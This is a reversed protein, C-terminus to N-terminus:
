VVDLSEVRTSPAGPTPRMTVAHTLQARSTVGLKPFMRYLHSAVTRHSLYLRQGIEKNSLGLAVMQAIQIEQPSLQDWAEPARRTSSEGAARLEQRAREAWGLAGLRDFTDRAVRLPGRSDTIRKNRRLWAGYALSIRANDFPWEGHTSDLAARFHEEAADDSALQARAYRLSIHVGPASTLAALPELKVVEARAADEHGSMVAYEALSGIAWAGQMRHYAPDSPLYVRYQQEFAAAPEGAGAARMARGHQITALTVAGIPSLRESRSALGESEDMKGRLAALMAQASLADAFIMPQRTEEALRGCEESAPGAVDWQGRRLAAWALLRLALALAALRGEERLGEAAASLLDQAERFAGLCAAAQGLLHLGSPDVSSLLGPHKLMEMVETSGEFPSAYARTVILRPDRKLHDMRVLALAVLESPREGLNSTWCRHAATVLFGLALEADGDADAREALEVLVNVRSAGGLMRHESKERVWELRLRDRLGLDCGGLEEDLRASLDADGLDTAIEAARLLRSARRSESISLRAAREWSAVADVAAGRRLARVAADELDDAVSDDPGLTAEARHWARRDPAGDLVQALVAHAQQRRGLGAAQYVASRMLPHRFRVSQWKLEVLGVDVAPELDHVGVAEGRLLSTAQLLESVRDSDNLAAVLLLDGSRGELQSARFAFARELRDTMPLWRAPPGGDTVSGVLKPLEVLALPNGAAATLVSRRTRPDFQGNQSLLREAEAQELPGLSLTEECAEALPDDDVLRGSAVLCVPDAGLRRAVFALVDASTRDLWHTDEVVLLLPQDGAVEALLDLAAQAVRFMEPAPADVMEFARALADQQASTLRRTVGMVPRLLKHLAAFPLRMEAPFGDTRLVRGGRAAWLTCAVDLLASKGIGPEGRVILSGGHESASGLLGELVAVERVRGVLATVGGGPAADEHAVVGPAV